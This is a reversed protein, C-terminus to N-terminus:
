YLGAIIDAPNISAIPIHEKKSPIIPKTPPVVLFEQQKHM